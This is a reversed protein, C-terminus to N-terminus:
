ENESHFAYGWAEGEPWIDLFIHKIAAYTARVPFFLFAMPNPPTQFDFTGSGTLEHTDRDYCCQIGPILTSPNAGLALLMDLTDSDYDLTYLIGGRGRVCANDGHFINLNAPAGFSIGTEPDVWNPPPLTDPCYMEQYQNRLRHTDCWYPEGDVPENACPVGPILGCGSVILVLGLAFFSRM